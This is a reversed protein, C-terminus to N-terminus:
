ATRTRRVKEYDDDEIEDEINVETQFDGDANCHAPPYGNKRLTWHRWFRNWCQFILNSAIVALFFTLVPSDSMFQFINM